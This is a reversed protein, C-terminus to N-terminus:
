VIPLKRTLAVSDGYDIITSRKDSKGCIYYRIKRCKTIFTVTGRHVLELQLLVYFIIRTSHEDGIYHLYCNRSSGVNVPTFANFILRSCHKDGIYHLYCDSSTGVNAPTIM